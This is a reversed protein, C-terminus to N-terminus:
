VKYLHPNQRRCAEIVAIQRRVQRPTIELPAGTTLSRHLRDYFAKTMSSEPQIPVYGSETGAPADATEPWAGTQWEVAERCFVPNGTAADALPERVLQLPALTAPDYYRWTAQTQTGKLGGRTGYIQYTFCPYACCSSIELDILPHGPGRLMLKVHNEADGASGETCDMHCFIEPEGEGFLCLAQDLPHPGTNALNGGNFDQLTQWDWRRAHGNFAISVQVLRGLVGSEIVRLVQRFYPAYRSQQFIALLRGTTKSVAVLDDVEATTRAFPKECLVHHGALLAERTIPAHLHSFTANVVLDLDKRQLLDRYDAHADCGYNQAAAQRRQAIPDAVAAIQFRPDTALYVGHIDRGSRGHGIIGVRVRKM